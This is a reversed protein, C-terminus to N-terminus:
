SKSLSRVQARLDLQPFPITIGAKDFGKKVNETLDFYVGWYDSSKCWARVTIKVSSEALEGVRVFHERDAPGTLIREDQQIISSILTKAKEMDEEYSIDFFLDVRREPETSYNVINGGALPGNPIIITKNDLTKLVTNFVTIEHVTGLFGQVEILDDKKFPRFLILLVGGAFNSLSGQLALGVALSAAGLVAIFSTTEVGVMSAVSIVLLVKLLMSLLSSLFSSLTVDETKHLQHRTLAVIKRILWLGVFLVILALLVRPVYAEAYIRMTDFFQKM